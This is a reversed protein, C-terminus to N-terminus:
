RKAVRKKTTKAKKGRAKARKQTSNASASRSRQPASGFGTQRPLRSVMKSLKGVEAEIQSQLKAVRRKVQKVTKEVHAVEVEGRKVIENTLRQLESRLKDIQTSATASATLRHLETRIKKLRTSIGNPMDDGSPNFNYNSAMTAMRAALSAQLAFGQRDLTSTASKQSSTSSSAFTKDSSGLLEVRNTTLTVIEQASDLPSHTASTRRSLIKLDSGFRSPGDARMLPARDRLYLELHAKDSILYTCRYLWRTEDQHMELRRATASIFGPSQLMDDLHQRLWEEFRAQLSRPTVLQVEYIVRDTSSSNIKAM